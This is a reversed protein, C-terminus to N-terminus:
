MVITEETQHVDLTHQLIIGENGQKVKEIAAQTAELRDEAEVRIVFRKKEIFTVEYTSM